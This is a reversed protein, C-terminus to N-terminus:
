DLHVMMMGREVDHCVVSHLCYLDKKQDTRAYSGSTALAGLDGAGVKHATKEKTKSPASREVIDQCENEV